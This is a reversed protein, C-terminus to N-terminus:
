KKNLNGNSENAGAAIEIVFDNGVTMDVSGYFYFGYHDTGANVSIEGSDANVTCTGYSFIGVAGAAADANVKLKGGNFNIVNNKAGLAWIGYTEGSTGGVNIVTGSNLNLTGTNVTVGADYKTGAINVTVNELTLIGGKVSVPVPPVSPYSGAVPVKTLEGNKITLEGVVEMGLTNEDGTLTHGQLNLTVDKGASITLTKGAPLVIDSGFVITEKGADIAAELDAADSVTAPPVLIVINVDNETNNQITVPEKYIRGVVAGANAEKDGYHNTAQDVTINITDVDCGEVISSSGIYGTIGGVDRYAKLTVNTATCEKIYHNDGNDGQWGVIGGIKDGNDYGNATKNPIATITVNEVHCNELNGYIQGVIAGSMRNADKIVVNKVTLNSISEAVRTTARGILGFLGNWGGGKIVNLNSITYGQGDFIGNFGIWTGNVDGAGIPTWPRNALDISKGLKVTKGMLDNGANVIKALGALEEATYIVFEEKEENYWDTNADNEWATFQANEDYLNDFSDFEATQQTALLKVGLNIQPVAAGKAYNAENGVTTPMYVVMTVIAEKGAELGTVKSGYGTSIAAASADVAAVAQDRTYAQDGEVVGVKIYDSLNFAEGAVNVSGTESAVNVGLQYKLALTGENAVKLKVVETHGPEWLSNTKFVNTTEEVKTWDTQGQAQYYLEVDLNGSTIVNNASEAEDTFWAITGGTISLVLSLALAAVLATRFLNTKRM